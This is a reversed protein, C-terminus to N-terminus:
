FPQPVFPFVRAIIYRNERNNKRSNCKSCLVQLNGAALQRCYFVARQNSSMSGHHSKAVADPIIVDLELDDRGGCAACRSGLVEFIATRKRLTFLSQRCMNISIRWCMKSGVDWAMRGISIGGVYQVFEWLVRRRQILQWFKLVFKNVWQMVLKSLSCHCILLVLWM